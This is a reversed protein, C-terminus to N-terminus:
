SNKIIEATWDQTTDLSSLNIAVINSDNTFDTVITQSYINTGDSLRITMNITEPEDLPRVGFFCTGEKLNYVVNTKMEGDYDNRTITPVKYPTEADITYDNDNDSWKKIVLNDIIDTIFVDLQTATSMLGTMFYFKDRYSAVQETGIQVIGDNPIYNLNFNTDGNYSLLRGKSYTNGSGYYNLYLKEESSYGHNAMYDTDISVDIHEIEGSSHVTSYFCTSMDGYTCIAKYKEEVVDSAKYFDLKIDDESQFFFMGHYETTQGNPMLRFGTETDYIYYDEGSNNIISLNNAQLESFMDFYDKGQWNTGIMGQSTVGFNTYRTAEITIGEPSRSTIYSKILKCFEEFIKETTNLGPLDINLIQESFSDPKIGGEVGLKERISDATDGFITNLDNSNM